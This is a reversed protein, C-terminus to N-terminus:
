RGQKLLITSATKLIISLDLYISRNKIYFFDYQIKKLSDEITPSHYNGSIQDWGTLGPKILTRENFFPIQKNLKFALEPREPRPGVFSMDGKLINLIQPIEDIRTKRIFSGFKTIRPDNKITITRSNNEERMSRFKYMKFIKNNQGLREMTIFVPGKSELKIILAIFPWFPLTILLIFLSLIIDYFRKFKDFFKKNGESLNEFFWMQDISEIPIKGTIEEYFNPMKIFSLKLKLLDFLISQLKEEPSSNIVIISINEEIILKKLYSLDKVIPIGEIEDYECESFQDVVFSIKYGLYKKGELEKILKDTEKNCGIIAINIKAFKNRIIHNALKRWLLFIIFFCVTFIILNTKPTINAPQYIYFFVVALILATTIARTLTQYFQSYSLIRSLNYFNFIYLIIIWILFVISFPLFHNQWMELSPKQFYRLFLALYLSLYLVAIDGTLLIIKKLYNKTM